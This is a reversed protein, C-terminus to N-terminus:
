KQGAPERQLEEYRERLARQRRLILESEVASNVYLPRLDELQKLLRAAKEREDIVQQQLGKLKKDADTSGVLQETLEIHKNIVSMLTDIKQDKAILTQLAEERDKVLTDLSREIPKAPDERDMLSALRPRNGNAPDLKMGKDDIELARPAHKKDPATGVPDGHALHALEADYYDREGQLTEGPPVSGPLQKDNRGATGGLEAVRLAQAARDRATLADRTNKRGVEARAKYQELKAPGVVPTVFASIAWTLGLLSFVLNLILLVKAFITV